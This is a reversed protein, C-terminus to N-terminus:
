ERPTERGSIAKLLYIQNLIQADIRAANVKALFAEVNADQVEVYNIRGALYSSYYLRAAEESQSVDLAALGRQERLLLLREAAKSFDRELDMRLQAQKKEASVFFYHQQASLHPTPDGLFLPLTLSVGVSEQWFRPPNPINPLTLSFAGSVQITPYRKASISEASLRHSEAQLAQAKLQPQGEDPPFFRSESEDALTKSLPDLRLVLTVHPIGSPGPRSIDRDEQDGILALLDAFGSSLSAQRQKFQIEYNLVSRKANLLDLRSAAGANFRTRIDREQARALNLSDHNLRLEDLGLQVQVYASRLSLLLQLAANARDLEKARRLANASDYARRASFTDWLTYTLTPGISYTNHNGFPFLQGPIFSALPITGYYTYNGQFSLKPLLSTFQATEYARAAATDAIFSQLRNSTRLALAEASRLTLAFDAAFGPSPWLLVLFIALARCRGGSRRLSSFSM